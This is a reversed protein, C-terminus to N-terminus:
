SQSFLLLDMEDFLFYITMDNSAFGHVLNGYFCGIGQRVYWMQEARSLNWDLLDGLLDGIFGDHNSKQGGLGNGACMGTFLREEHDLTLSFRGKKSNVRSLKLTGHWDSMRAELTWIKSLVSDCKYQVGLGDEKKDFYAIPTVNQVFRVELKWECPLFHM